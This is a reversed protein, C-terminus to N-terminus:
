VKSIFFYNRDFQVKAYDKFITKFKRLDRDNVEIFIDVKNNDMLYKMGQIVHEETGETDIKILINKNNM